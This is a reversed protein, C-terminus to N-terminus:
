KQGGPRHQGSACHQRVAEQIDRMERVAAAKSGLSRWGALSGDDHCVVWRGTKTQQVYMPIAGIM